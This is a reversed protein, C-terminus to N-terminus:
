GHDTDKDPYLISEREKRWDHLFPEEEIESKLCSAILGEATGTVISMSRLLQDARRVYLRLRLIYWLLEMVEPDDRHADQIQKLRETTLPPRLRNM